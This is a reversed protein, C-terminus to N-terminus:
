IAQLILEYVQCGLETSSSMIQFCNACYIQGCHTEDGLSFSKKTPVALCIKTPCGIQLIRLTLWHRGRNGPRLLGVSDNSPLLSYTDHGFYPCTEKEM